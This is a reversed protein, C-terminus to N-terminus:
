TAVYYFIMPMKRWPIFVLILFFHLKAELMTFM